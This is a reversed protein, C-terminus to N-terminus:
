PRRTMWKDDLDTFHMGDFLPIDSVQEDAMRLRLDDFLQQLVGGCNYTFLDLMSAVRRILIDSHIAKLHKVLREEDLVTIGNEWAEFVVPPGGCHVPYQLTDLLTQELTTIRYRTKQGFFREKVGPILGKYRRNRYYPLGEYSFAFEGIPNRTRKVTDQVPKTTVQQKAPRKGKIEILRAVNHHSPLQTTLEYEQLASFFCIVGRPKLATLLEIPHPPLAGAGLGVLFLDISSRVQQKGELPVKSLLKASILHQIIQSASIRKHGKFCMEDRIAIFRRKLEPKSVCRTNPLDSSAASFREALNCLFHEFFDKSFTTSKVM